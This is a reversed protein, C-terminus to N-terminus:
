LGRDIKELLKPMGILIKHNNNLVDYHTISEQEYEIIQKLELLKNKFSNYEDKEISNFAWCLINYRMGYNKQDDITRKPCDIKRHAYDGATMKTCMACLKSAVAAYNLDSDEECSFM